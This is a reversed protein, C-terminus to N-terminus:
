KLHPAHVEGLSSFFAHTIVVYKDDAAAAACM